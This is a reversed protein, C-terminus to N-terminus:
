NFVFKKGNISIYVESEIYGGSGSGTIAKSDPNNYSPTKVTKNYGKIGVYQKHNHDSYLYWSIQQLTAMHTRAGLVFDSGNKVYTFKTKSVYKPAAYLKDGSAAYLVDGGTPIYSAITVGASGFPIIRDLLVGGGYLLLTDAFKSSASGTKVSTMGFANSVEVNWDKLTFGNYKRVASWSGSGARTVASEPAYISIKAEPNVDLTEEVYEMVEQPIDYQREYEKLNENNIVFEGGAMDAAKVQMPIVLLVFVMVMTVIRKTM